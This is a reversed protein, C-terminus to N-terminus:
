QFSVAVTSRVVHHKYTWAYWGFYYEDEDSANNKRHVEERDAIVTITFSKEEGVHDFKLVNQSAMIRFEKPSMASFKYVGKPNGVNTVTRRVTKKTGNLRHIQISPYNLNYPEPLPNPCKYPLKLDQTEGLSCTHLVYDTYSADYVLGPDSAKTPQFHGSGYAFPTAPKGTEDTLPKGTNDTTGAASFISSANPYTLSTRIILLM